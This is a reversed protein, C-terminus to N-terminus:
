RQLANNTSLEPTLIASPTLAFPTPASYGVAAIAPPKIRTHTLRAVACVASCVFPVPAKLMLKTITSTRSVMETTSLRLVFM